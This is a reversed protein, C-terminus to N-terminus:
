IYKFVIQRIARLVFEDKMNQSLTSTTHLNCCFKLDGIHSQLLVDLDFINLLKRVASLAFEVNM